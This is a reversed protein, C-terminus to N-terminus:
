TAGHVRHCGRGAAKAAYLAQDADQILDEARVDDYSRSLAAGISASIRCPSDGFFIPKELQAILRLALDDAQEPRSVGPLLLLFEDGGVRLVRDDQRTEALMRRAAEQLVHDGAAHGLGDNVAKFFDLDLHMVAFDRGSEVLRALVPDLARRNGLGTLTDTFAQEEAELQQELERNLAILADREAQLDQTMRQGLRTEAFLRDPNVVLVDSQVVGISQASVQAGTLGTVGLGVLVALHRLFALGTM